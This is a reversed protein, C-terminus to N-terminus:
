GSFKCNNGTQGQIGKCNWYCLYKKAYMVDPAEKIKSRDEAFIVITLLSNPYAAGVDLFTVKELAKTRYVKFSITASEGIHKAISDISTKTQFFVSATLFIAISLFLLKKMSM